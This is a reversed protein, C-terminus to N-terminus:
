EGDNFELTVDKYGNEAVDPVPTRNAAKFAYLNNNAFDTLDGGGCAVLNFCSLLLLVLTARRSLIQKLM